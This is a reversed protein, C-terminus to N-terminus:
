NYRFLKHLKENDDLHYTIVMTTFPYPTHHPDLIKLKKISKTIKIELHEFLKNLDKTFQKAKNRAPLLYIIQFRFPIGYRILSEM